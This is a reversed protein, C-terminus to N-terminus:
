LSAERAKKRMALLRERGTLEPKNKSKKKDAPKKIDAFDLSPLSQAKAAKMNMQREKQGDVALHGLTVIYDIPFTMGSVAILTCKGNWGEYINLPKGVEAVITDIDIDNRGHHIIGINGCVKDKQMPAFINNDFLKAIGDKGYCITMSGSESLMELRESEDFNNPEGWSDDTLFADFLSVFTNNIWRLDNNKCRNNDLFFSAGIGELEMLEQMAQYANKHQNISEKKSPLVSVPVIIKKEKEETYVDNIYQAVTTSLGSGTSGGAAYILVIIQEDIHELAETFEINDCLCDMARERHGAFGDYGDLKYINKENGLVKLDQESGNAFMTNYEKQSFLKAIKCGCNGLGIVLTKKKLEM